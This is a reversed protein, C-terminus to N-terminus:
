KDATTTLILHCLSHSSQQQPGLVWHLINPVIAISENNIDSNNSTVRLLTELSLDRFVTDWLSLEGAGFAVKEM